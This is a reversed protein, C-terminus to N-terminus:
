NYLTSYFPSKLFHAVNTYLPSSEEFTIYGHAERLLQLDRHLDAWMTSTGGELIDTLANSGLGNGGVEGRGGGGPVSNITIAYATWYSRLVYFRCKAANIIFTLLNRADKYSSIIVFLLVGLLVFICAILFIFIDRLQNSLKTYRDTHNRKGGLTQM